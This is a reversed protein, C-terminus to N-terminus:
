YIEKLNVIYLKFFYFLMAPNQIQKSVSLFFELHNKPAILEFLLIHKSCLRTYPPAVKFQCCGFIEATKSKRFLIFNTM